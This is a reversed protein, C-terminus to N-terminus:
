LDHRALPMHTSISDRIRRELTRQDHRALPMHTSIEYVKYLRQRNKLWAECSAHSYFNPMSASIHCYVEDHRALPMHTSIVPLRIREALLILWAECSAHSYFNFPYACDPKDIVTMGRLLCTLLFGHSGGFSHSCCGDHRALPMHTSIIRHQGSRLYLQTM